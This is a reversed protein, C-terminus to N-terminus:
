QGNEGTSGAEISKSDPDSGSGGRNEPLVVTVNVDQRRHRSLVRRWLIALVLLGALAYLTN